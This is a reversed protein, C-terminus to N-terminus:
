DLACTFSGPGGPQLKPYVRHRGPECQQLRNRELEQQITNQLKSQLQQQYEKIQKMTVVPLGHALQNANYQDLRDQLIQEARAQADSVEDARAPVISLLLIVLLYKM